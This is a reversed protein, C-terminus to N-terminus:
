QRIPTSEDASNRSASNVGTTQATSEEVASTRDPPNVFATPPATSEAASTSGAANATANQAATDQHATVQASGPIDQGPPIAPQASSSDGVGYEPPREGSEMDRLHAPEPAAPAAVSRNAMEVDETDHNKQPNYPPPAEGLENLGERSATGGWVNWRGRRTHMPHGDPALQQQQPWDRYQGRMRRRRRYYLLAVLLAIALVCVLPIIVFTLPKLSASGEDPTTRDM